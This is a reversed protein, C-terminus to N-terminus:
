KNSYNCNKLVSVEDWIEALDIKRQLTGTQNDHLQIYGCAEEEEGNTVVAALLDLEDECEVLRFTQM